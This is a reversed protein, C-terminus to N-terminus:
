LFFFRLLFNKLNKLNQVKNSIKQVIILYTRKLFKYLKFFFVTCFYWIEFNEILVLREWQDGTYEYLNKRELVNLLCFDWNCLTGESPYYIVM